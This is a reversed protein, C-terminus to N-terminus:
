AMTKEQYVLTKYLDVMSKYIEFQSRKQELTSVLDALQERPLILNGDLGSFKFANEYFSVPVAKGSTFYKPDTMVQKFNEAEAIKIKNELVMKDYSIKKVEDALRMYDSFDPLAELVKKSNTEM